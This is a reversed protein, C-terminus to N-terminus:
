KRSRIGVLVIGYEFGGREHRKRMREAEVAEYSTGLQRALAHVVELVDALEEVNKASIFEAVEEQLKSALLDYLEGPIGHRIIPERGSAKIIEPILDRVLKETM